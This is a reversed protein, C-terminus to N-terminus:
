MEAMRTYIANGKAVINDKLLGQMVNSCNKDSNLWNKAIM